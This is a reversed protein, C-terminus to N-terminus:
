FCFNQWHRAIWAYGLLGTITWAIAVGVSLSGFVSALFHTPLLALVLVIAPITSLPRDQPPFIASNIACASLVVGPFALLLLMLWVPQPNEIMTADRVADSM